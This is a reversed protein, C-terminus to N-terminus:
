RKLCLCASCYRLRKGRIAAMYCCNMYKLAPSMFDLMHDLRRHLRHCINDPLGNLAFPCRTPRAKRLHNRPKLECISFRKM